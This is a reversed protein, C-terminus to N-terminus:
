PVRVASRGADTIRYTTRQKGRIGEDEVRRELLGAKRLSALTGSGAAAPPAIWGGSAVVSANQLFVNLFHRLVTNQNESLKMTHVSARGSTATFLPDRM